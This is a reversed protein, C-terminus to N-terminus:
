APPRDAAALLARHGAAGSGGGERGRVREGAGTQPWGRDSAEPGVLKPNIEYLLVRLLVLLVKTQM